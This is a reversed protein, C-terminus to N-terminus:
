RAETIPVSYMCPLLFRLLAALNDHQAKIIEGIHDRLVWIGGTYDYVGALVAQTQLLWQDLGDFLLLVFDGLGQGLLAGSDGLDLRAVLTVM